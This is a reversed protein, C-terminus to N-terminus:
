KLPAHGHDKRIRQTTEWLHRESKLLSALNSTTIELSAATPSLRGEHAELLDLVFAAVSWFRPNKRAIRLSMVPPDAGKKRVTFAETVVSPLKLDHSDLSQRIRLALNMRLRRLAITKNELQSRTGDSHVTIQTPRHRIRVASSVKNRHQGGPGSSRYVHVDCHKLLEADSMTLYEDRSIESMDVIM